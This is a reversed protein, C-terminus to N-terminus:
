YMLYVCLSLFYYCLGNYFIKIKIEMCFYKIKYVILKFIYVM